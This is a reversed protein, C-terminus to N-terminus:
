CSARAALDRGCARVLTLIKGEKRIIIAETSRRAAFLRCMDISESSGSRFANRLYNRGNKRGDKAYFLGEVELAESRREGSLILGVLSLLTSILVTELGFFNAFAGSTSASMRLRINILHPAM